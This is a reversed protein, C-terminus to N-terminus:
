TPSCQSLNHGQKFISSQGKQVSEHKFFGERHRRDDCDWHCSRFSNSPLSDLANGRVHHDYHPIAAIRKQAAESFQNGVSKGTLM